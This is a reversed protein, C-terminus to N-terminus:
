RLQRSGRRAPEVGRGFRVPPEVRARWRTSRHSYAKSARSVARNCMKRCRQPARAIAERRTLEM